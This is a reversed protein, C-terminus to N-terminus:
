GLSGNFENFDTMGEETINLEKYGFKDYLLKFIKYVYHIGENEYGKGKNKASAIAASYSSSKVYYPGRNYGFLSCSALRDCRTGMWNIYVFQAKIMIDFNDTINQHLAERNRGAYFPESPPTKTPSYEFGIVNKWIAERETLTFYGGYNNLIIVDYVTIRLFQSIGSASSKYPAYNWVCYASEAFTQAAIINADLNFKTAYKNYIRILEDGLEKNTKIGGNIEPNSTWTKEPSTAPISYPLVYKNKGVLKSNGSSGCTKRIYKEGEVTIKVEGM